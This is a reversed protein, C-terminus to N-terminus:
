RVTFTYTGTTRHGDDSAVVRWDVSYVGPKLPAKLMVMLGKGAQETMTAAPIAKGDAGKVTARSLKESIVESFLLDLNQPAIKAVSDAPPDASVLKAHANAAGALCLGVAAALVAPTKM